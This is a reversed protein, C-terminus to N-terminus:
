SFEEGNELLLKIRKEYIIEAKQNFENKITETLVSSNINHKNGAPLTLTLIVGDATETIKPYSIMPKLDIIKMGSKKSFKKAEITERSLFRNLEEATIGSLRIEYAALAIEMRDHVPPAIEIIKIGFPLVDNLMKKYKKPDAEGVIAFDFFENMGAVGLTLPLQFDLYIRPTFGETYWFPINTRRFARAITRMVDLHSIYVARGTKIFRARLTTKYM